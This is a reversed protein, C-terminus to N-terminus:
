IATGQARTVPIGPTRRPVRSAKVLPTTRNGPIRHYPAPMRGAKDLLLAFFDTLSSLSIFRWAKAFIMM